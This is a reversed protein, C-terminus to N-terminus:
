FSPIVPIKELNRLSELYKRTKEEGFCHRTLSIFKAAIQEESLPNAVSGSADMIRKEFTQGDQMEVTVSCGWKEPYKSTFEEDALVDVKAALAKVDPSLIRGESFQEQNAGGELLAVAVAFRMSFKAESVNEPYVIVGCQKVGVQYSRVTIKHVAGPVIDEEKRLALIADIPPHMSRCCSYPKRDVNLIEFRSGLDGSVANMDFSDSTARYLGGDAADLVHIPGTMGASALFAAVVGNEAARGTHLKKSTSGDELFAWVGSSQTGAMGLSYLIRRADLALIKAAAAAAGFTGATGSVHWGRNRHSSVGFGEGIRAMTEYGVIVAELLKRGSICFAEGVSWAAPLVVAGIHTKSRTHVDDLELSHALIGNLFAAQFVSNKEGTGWISASRRGPASFSNFLRIVDPVEEYMGGGVAAGISDICCSKAAQIIESSVQDLSFSQIFEALRQLNNAVVLFDGEPFCLCVFRSGKYQYISHFLLIRM